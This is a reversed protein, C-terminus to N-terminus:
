NASTNNSQIATLEDGTATHYTDEGILFIANASVINLADSRNANKTGNVFAAGLQVTGELASGLGLTSVNGAVYKHSDAAGDGNGDIGFAWFMKAVGPAPVNAFDVPLIVLAGYDNETTGMTAADFDDEGQVNNIITVTGNIAVTIEAVTELPVNDAVKEAQAATNSAYGAYVDITEVDAPVNVNTFTAGGSVAATQNVYLITDNNFTYDTTDGAVVVLSVQEGATAGTVNVTIVKSEDVTVDENAAFAATSLLMCMVTAFAIAKMLKKM